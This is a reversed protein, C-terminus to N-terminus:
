YPKFRNIKIANIASILTKLRASFDRELACQLAYTSEATLQAFFPQVSQSATKSHHILHTWPVHIVHPHRIGGRSPARKLADPRNFLM